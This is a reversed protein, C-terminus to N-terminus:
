DKLKYNRRSLDKFVSVVVISVIGGAFGNNYLNTGGHIVGVTMVTSLHLFGVLVGAFFGFEGAVPALTTGFLGAILVVTSSADWIKLNSAISVGILVPIVNRPHKGFTSFGVVTLIGAIIPGNFTGKSLYVYAISVLGMLGMNVYSTGKHYDNLYDSPSQGSRKILQTYEKLTFGEYFIGYLMLILSLVGLFLAIFLSYDESLIDQTHIILNFSKLLSFILTGIIGGALGVNYLNFGDHVKFLSQSVPTIVFGVLTGITVGLLLGFPAPLHTGFTLESVIPSLTTAFMLIVIISDLSVGKLKSYIYGGLYIPWFNFINKGIFSFGIVTLVAAISLGTIHSKYKELILINIYGMLAANVFAAGIGGVEIYDTLLIDPSLVIDLMGRYIQLPTDLIFASVFLILCFIKILDLAQPKREM